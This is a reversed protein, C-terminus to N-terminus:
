QNNFNFCKKYTCTKCTGDEYFIKAMFCVEYDILCCSADLGQLPEPLGINLVLPINGTLPSNSVHKINKSANNNSLPSGSISENYFQLSTSNNITSGARLFVSSTEVNTVGGSCASPTALYKFSIM